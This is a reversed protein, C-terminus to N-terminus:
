TSKVQISSVEVTDMGCGCGHNYGCSSALGAPGYDERIKQRHLRRGYVANKKLDVCGTLGVKKTAKQAAWGTRTALVLICSM